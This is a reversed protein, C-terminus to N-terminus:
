TSAVALESALAAALPQVYRAVCALLDDLDFPKAICEVAGARLLWPADPPVTSMVVIPISALGIARVHAILEVSRMGSPGWDLVILTPPLRAIAARADAGDRAAYVVYGADTLLEVLFDVIASDNDIILISGTRQM